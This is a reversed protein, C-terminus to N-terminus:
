SCDVMKSSFTSSFTSSLWTLLSRVRDSTFRDITLTEEYVAEFEVAGARRAVSLERATELASRLRNVVMRVADPMYAYPFASFVISLANGAGRSGSEIM